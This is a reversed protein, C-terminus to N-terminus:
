NFVVRTVCTILGIHCPRIPVRKILSAHKQGIASSFATEVRLFGQFYMMILKGKSLIENNLKGDPWPKISCSVPRNVGEPQLGHKRGV